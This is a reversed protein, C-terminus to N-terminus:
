KKLQELAKRAAPAEPADPALQLFKGLDAKAGEVDDRQLRVLARYYYAEGKDPFRAIAKEFYQLAEVARNQNLFSIGVNVFIVPDTVATDDVSALVQRGEDLRGMDMLINGLRLRNEQDAPDKEVAIKLHRVAEDYNKEAYYTRAIYPEVRYADPYRALIDEYIARAEAWKQQAVLDGARVMALRIVENVDVKLQVEIPPVRTLEAVSVALRRSEYGALEFDLEWDGRALGGVAWEGKRNTKATTGGAGPLTLRVVVNELPKGQEDTVKGALRGMGRWSQAGAAVPSGMSWVLLLAILRTPHSIQM